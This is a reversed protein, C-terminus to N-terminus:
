SAAHGPLPLSGFMRIADDLDGYVFEYCDAAEVVKTLLEFGAVGFLAYNFANDALRVLTRAKSYPQLDSAAGERFQPFIIWKPQSQRSADKLSSPPVKMHAVSGKHTDHSVPGVCADPAFNRIVDISANKLSIPRPSATLTADLPNFMALEDSLLRWGRLALAACLTSKGSGPPAPLIAAAGNRDIVAAHVMLFQHSNNAITWNLGWEFLPLAHSATMPQFPQHGDFRFVAQQGVWRRLGTTHTLSVHFDFIQAGECTEYNNYFYHLREGFSAIDSHIRLAFPHVRLALTGSALMRALQTTSLDGLNM